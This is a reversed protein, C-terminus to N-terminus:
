VERRKEIAKAARLALWVFLTIPWVSSLLLAALLGCIFVNEPPVNSCKEGFLTGRAAHENASRILLFAFVLMAASTYM